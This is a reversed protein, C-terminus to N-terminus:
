THLTNILGFLSQVDKLNTPSPISMFASLPAPDPSIIARRSPCASIRFGGFLVLTSLQFKIKTLIIGRDIVCIMVHSLAEYSEQSGRMEELLDDISKSVREKEEVVDNTIINFRDGSNLEGMGLTTMRMKGFPTIFALLDKSDEHLPVQHYGQVYDLVFYVRSDAKLNMRVEHVSSFNWCIQESNLNIEKFNCVLRVEGSKEPIFSAPAMFRTAHPCSEIVGIRLLRNIERKAQEM